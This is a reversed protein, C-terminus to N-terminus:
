GIKVREWKGYILLLVRHFCKPWIFSIYIKKGFLFNQQYVIKFKWDNNLISSLIDTWIIYIGRSRPWMLISYILLLENQLFFHRVSFINLLCIETTNILKLKVINIMVMPISLLEFILHFLFFHYLTQWIFPCFVAYRM